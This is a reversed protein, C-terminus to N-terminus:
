EVEGVQHLRHHRVSIFDVVKAGVKRVGDRDGNYERLDLRRRVGRWAVGCWAVVRCSVVRCAM